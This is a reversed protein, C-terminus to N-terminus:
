AADANSRGKMESLRMTQALRYIVSIESNIARTLIESAHMRLSPFVSWQFRWGYSYIM